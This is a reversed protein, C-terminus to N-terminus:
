RDSKIAIIIKQDPRRYLIDIFCIVGVKDITWLVKEGQRRNKARKKGNKGWCGVFNGFWDNEM